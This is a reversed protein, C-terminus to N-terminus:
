VVQFIYFKLYGTEPVNWLIPHDPSQYRAEVQRLGVGADSAASGLMDCFMEDTMFHSCSCTALYGGPPLLKMARLNIEKYGRVANETTKRSKTFAPPDLIIMDYVGRPGETLQPLLDFVNAAKCEVVGDLGNRKANAEAMKVADESIDVALVHSAGGKAANLAFSGTHTFCDLVRRGRSIRAVAQRNYKQDLFFGTKQGNEFDVQYEIGNEVITTETFTPAKLDKFPFYGKGQTMGELERIAVDNREYLGDIQQGDERLIKLLLSFIMEKRKEIGLSLTQAVLINEFRDVTLGPFFDAEGFIIRCCGIDSGMVTKRYEWAHRLRREFFAEDFSDNANRSIIRIRIKSNNNIFGTGLYKGRTSLVDVLDGNGYDGVKNLVETDYVWPHGARLSTEAKYSVSVTANGRQKM